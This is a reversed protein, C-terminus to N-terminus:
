CRPPTTALRVAAPRPRLAPLRLHGEPAAGTPSGADHETPRSRSSCDTATFEDAAASRSAGLTARTTSATAQDVEYLDEEAFFGTYSMLGEYVAGLQNIGLEAYSISGATAGASSRAVADPAAAGAAARRQAASRTSCSRRAEARVAPHLPEFQLDFGHPGRDDDSDADDLQTAAHRYGDNVLRFLLTSRSTSTPATRPRARHHARRPDPRAAPRPQLGAAYEPDDVPLIGLEPRAEAYLLFLIGTSSGCRSAPDAAQGPRPRQARRGSAGACRAVVENAIDRDVPPRRRAPGQSVGVAHKSVRRLSSTSCSDGRRGAGLADASSAPRRRDRARRRSPTTASSPSTSTSPSTAARAGSTRDALVVVGGPSSSCSGRPRRRRRLPRCRSATPRAAATRGHSPRRASPADRRRHRRRADAAFAPRSRRRSAAGTPLDVQAPSPSGRSPPAADGGLELESATATRLRARRAAIADHLTAPARPTPRGDAGPPSSPYQTALDRSAAHPADRSTPARARRGLAQAPRELDAQLMPELYHDRSTSAATSSRRRLM